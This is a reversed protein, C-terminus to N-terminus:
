EDDMSPLFREGNAPDIRDTQALAWQSWREFDKSTSARKALQALWSLDILVFLLLANGIAVPLLYRDLLYVHQGLFGCVHDAHAAWLRRNFIASQNASYPCYSSLLNLSLFLAISCHIENQLRAKPLPSKVSSKATM